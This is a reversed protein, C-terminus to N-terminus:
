EGPKSVGAMRPRWRKSKTTILVVPVGPCSHWPGWENAPPYDTSKIVAIDEVDDASLGDPMAGSAAASARSDVLVVYQSDVVYTFYRYSGGDRIRVTTRGSASPVATTPVPRAWISDPSPCAPTSQAMKTTARTCALCTAVVIVFPRM